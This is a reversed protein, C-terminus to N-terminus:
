LETQSFLINIAINKEAFYIYKELYIHLIVFFYM